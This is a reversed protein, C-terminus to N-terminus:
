RGDIRIILNNTNMASSYEIDSAAAMILRIGINKEPHEPDPKWNAAKSKLDFLRCDDRMRVTISDSKAFVKIELRHPKGDTFGHEIVNCAMEEVCLALKKAEKIGFGRETCFGGVEESLAIVDGVNQLSREICDCSPVGFDPPLLMHAEAGTRSRDKSVLFRILIILSLTIQGVPFALWVGRIGMFSSLLYAAAAPFALEIGINVINAAVGRSVNQFYNSASVNFALFPLCVAYCRLAEAAMDRVEGAQSIYLASILPSAAFVAAAFATIGLLIYRLASRVVTIMGSVNQEGAMMGGVLLVAGGLGWGFAGLVFSSSNQASLATVGATGILGLVLTNLLIPLVSRCVMCVARPLGERLLAPLARLRISKFSFHFISGKRLFHTLVIALAVYHSVTSAIAMGFMGGKFVFINLIDGAVDTIICFLSAIRPRASDGDLQIIPTLVVFSIFGPAGIFIGRLYEQTQSFVSDGASGAGFMGAFWGSFVVGCASLVASLVVCLSVTSSFVSNLERMDNKGLARTCRNVCGVMLIGSVVSAISFYPGGLGFAALATDGLYRGTLIADIIATTAGTLEAVIMTLMAKRFLTKTINGSAVSIQKSLM